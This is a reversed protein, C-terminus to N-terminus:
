FYNSGHFIVPEFISSGSRDPVTGFHNGSKKLESPGMSSSGLVRFFHWNIDNEIYECTSSSSFDRSCLSASGIYFHFTPGVFNFVKIKVETLRSLINFFKFNDFILLKLISSGMCVFNVHRTGFKEVM